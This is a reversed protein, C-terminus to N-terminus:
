CQFAEIFSAVVGLGDTVQVDPRLLKIWNWPLFFCNMSQMEPPWCQLPSALNFPLLFFPPFHLFFQVIQIIEGIYFLRVGRGINKRTTEVVSSRNVNSLLGLCFRHLFLCYVLNLFFIYIIIIRSVSVSVNALFGYSCRSFLLKTLIKGLM